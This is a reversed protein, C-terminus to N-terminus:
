NMRQKKSLKNKPLTKFLDWMSMGYAHTRLNFGAYKPRQSHVCASVWFDWDLNRINDPKNTECAKDRKLTMKM